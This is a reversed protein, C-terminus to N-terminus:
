ISQGILQAVKPIYKFRLKLCDAVDNYTIKEQRYAEFVLSVFPIGEEHLCKRARDPEFGKREQWEKAQWEKHKKEYVNKNILGLVSMRRLIAEQSVKFEKAFKYLLEDFKERSSLIENTLRHKLFDEEPVLLAGAFHNCFKETLKDEDSYGGIDEMNCIGSKHLLIHSYEHFLSFIRAKITDRSNVVIVPLYGEIFSFGRIKDELPMSMQFILIGQKEVVERWKNFAENANKWKLQAEINIGLEDRIKKALTEPDESLSFKKITPHVEKNLSKLLDVALSQLRRARRIALRTKSSLPLKEETPFYRFDKPLPPEKPPTPLFFVALPRKYINAIRELTKLTPNKQGLEWKNISDVSLGLRKSVDEPTLGISERTWRLIKPEVPVELSKRPM